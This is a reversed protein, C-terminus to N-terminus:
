APTGNSAKYLELITNPVRGYPQVGYGNRKAWERVRASEGSTNRRRRPREGPALLRARGLKRGKAQYRSLVRRLENAHTASLDIEYVQEDIAFRLTEDATTGDLDDILHIVRQKAM